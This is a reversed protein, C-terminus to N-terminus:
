TLDDARPLITVGAARLATMAAELSGGLDIARCAEEILVAEFGLRVADEASYRVCYDTALGVCVVRGLGRDRLYGLVADARKRSAVLGVYGASTGLARELADEDYHGQTAVVVFSRENM